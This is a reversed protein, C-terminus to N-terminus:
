YLTDVTEIGFEGAFEVRVSDELDIDGGECGEGDVIM